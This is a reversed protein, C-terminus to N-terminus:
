QLANGNCFFFFVIYVDDWLFCRELFFFSLVACCFVQLAAFYLAVRQAQSPSSSFIFSFGTKQKEFLGSIKVESIRSM